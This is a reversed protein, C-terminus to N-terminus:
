SAQIIKLVTQLQEDSFNFIAESSEKIFNVDQGYPYELERNIVQAFYPSTCFYRYGTKTKYIDLHEYM